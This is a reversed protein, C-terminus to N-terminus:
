DHVIDYKIEYNDQSIIESISDYRDKEIPFFRILDGASIFCPPQSKVDFIKIPTNGIIQWGGPSAVPYIGTQAGGIAVSGPDIRLRPESRRNMHLKEDLGGLYLFGPLFGIFFVRYDRDTHLQILAEKDLEKEDCILDLDPGFETEYCVPIKWIKRQINEAQKLQNYAAKLQQIEDYINEITIDYCVLISNYANIIEIKQKVLKQSIYKKFNLLDFLINEDIEPPWKILIAKSGYPFYELKFPM